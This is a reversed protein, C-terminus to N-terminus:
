CTDDIPLPHRLLLERPGGDALFEIKVECIEVTEEDRNGRRGGAEKPTASISSSDPQDLKVDIKSPEDFAEDFSSFDMMEFGSESSEDVMPVSSLQLASSATETGPNLPQISSKRHSRPSKVSAAKSAVLFTTVGFDPVQTGRAAGITAMTLHKADGGRKAARLQDRLADAGRDGGNMAANPFPSRGADDVLNAVLDDMANQPSDIASLPNLLQYTSAVVSAPTSMATASTATDLSILVTLPILPLARPIHVFLLTSNSLIM